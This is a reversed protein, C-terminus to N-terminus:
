YDMIVPMGCIREFVVAATITKAGAMGDVQFQLWCRYTLRLPRAPNGIDPYLYRTGTGGYMSATEIAYGDYVQWHDTLGGADDHSARVQIVDWYEGEPPRIDLATNGGAGSAKTIIKARMMGRVDDSQRDM